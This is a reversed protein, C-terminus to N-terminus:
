VRFRYSLFSTHVQPGLPECVAAEADKAGPSFIKQRAKTGLDEM